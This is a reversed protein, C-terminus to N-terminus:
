ANERNVPTTQVNPTAQNGRGNTVQNIACRSVVAGTDLNFLDLLGDAGAALWDVADAALRYPNAKRCQATLGARRADNIAREVVAAALMAWPDDGTQYYCFRVGKM